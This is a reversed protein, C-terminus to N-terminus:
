DEECYYEEQSDANDNKADDNINDDVNTKTDNIDNNGDIINDV